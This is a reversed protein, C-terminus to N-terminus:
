RIQHLSNWRTQTQGARLLADVIPLNDAKLDTREIAEYLATKGQETSARPDAGQALLTRVRALDNHEAANMLPTLKPDDKYGLTADSHCASCLLVIASIVASAHKPFM